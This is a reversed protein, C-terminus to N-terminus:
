DLVTEAIGVEVAISRIGSSRVAVGSLMQRSLNAWPRSMRARPHCDYEADGKHVIISSVMDSGHWGCLARGLPRRDFRRRTCLWLTPGFTVPNCICLQIMIMTKIEAWLAGVSTHLGCKTGAISLKLAQPLSASISAARSGCALVKELPHL